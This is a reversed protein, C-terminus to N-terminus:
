SPWRFGFEVGILQPYKGGVRIRIASPKALSGTALLAEAVSNPAKTDTRTRWWEFAKRRSYTGVPADLSVWESAVRSIGRYYDARLTSIKGVKSHRSYKVDTVEISEVRSIVEETTATAEHKPTDDVPFEYGCATCIKASIHLFELCSPCWKVPADGSLRGKGQGKPRIMDIPGFRETNGSFDLILCDKKDKATRMGRGLIQVWLGPSQTPRLCAIMDLGPHDFGVTLVNMNTLCQIRGAKFDILIRDRDASPTGQHIAECTIGKARIKSAVNEAHKVGSCFVLWSKRNKGYSVIEEVAREVVGDENVIAELAGAVFEGGQIAVKSTDIQEVTRKSSLPALFGNHIMKHLDTEYIIDNFLAENGGVLSGGKLRYPTATLGVVKMNPNRRMLANIFGRYTGVQSSNIAHAEDVICVDPAHFLHPNRHASQIGAFIIAHDTQKSNLGASYVGADALPLHEHIKSYDQAVLEKSHCLVLLRTMPWQKLASAIFGAIVHSKGTGTAMSVVPNGTPHSAFYDYISDIADQQYPRLIM